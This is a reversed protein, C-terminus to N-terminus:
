RTKPPRLVRLEEAPMEFVKEPEYERGPTRITVLQRGGVGTFGRDEIVVAKIQRGAIDYAVLTGVRMRSSKPRKRHPRPNSPRAAPPLAM